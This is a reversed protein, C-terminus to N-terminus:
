AAAAPPRLCARRGSKTVGGPRAPPYPQTVSRSESPFSAHPKGVRRMAQGPSRTLTRRGPAPPNAREDPKEARVGQRNRKPALRGLGGTGARLTGQVEPLATAEGLYGRSLQPVGPLNALRLLSVRRIDGEQPLPIQTCRVTRRRRHRPVREPLVYVRLLRLTPRLPSDRQARLRRDPARPRRRTERRKKDIGTRKASHDFELRANALGWRDGRADRPDM